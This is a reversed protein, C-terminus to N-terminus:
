DCNLYLEEVHVSPPVAVRDHRAFKRTEVVNEWGGCSNVEATLVLNERDIPGAMCDRGNAAGRDQNTSEM